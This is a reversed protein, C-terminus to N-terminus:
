RYLTCYLSVAGHQFGNPIPCMYMYLKKSLIVSVIAEWFISSKKQAVRYTYVPTYIYVIHNEILNTTYTTSFLPSFFPGRNQKLNHYYDNRKIKRKKKSLMAVTNIHYLWMHDVKSKFTNM